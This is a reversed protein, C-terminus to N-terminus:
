SRNQNLVKSEVCFIWTRLVVVGDLVSGHWTAHQDTWANTWLESTCYWGDSYSHEIAPVIFLTNLWSRVEEIIDCAVIIRWHHKTKKWNKEHLKEQDNHTKVASYPICVPDQSSFETRGDTRWVRLNHCFPLFIHKSKYVVRFIMQGLKRFFLVTPQPRGRRGSINPWGVLFLEILVLLFDVIRKGILRRHDDYM